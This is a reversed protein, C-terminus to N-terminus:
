FIETRLNGSKVVSFFSSFPYIHDEIRILANILLKMMESKWDEIMIKPKNKPSERSLPPSSCFVSLAEILPCTLFSLMVCCVLANSEKLKM